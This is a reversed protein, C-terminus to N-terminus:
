EHLLALHSGKNPILCFVGIPHRMLLRGDKEFSILRLYELVELRLQDSLQETDCLLFFNLLLAGPTSQSRFCDTIDTVADLVEFTHELQEQVLIAELEEGNFVAAPTGSARQTFRSRVDQMGALMSNFILIVGGPRVMHLARRIAEKRDAIFYLCHTFHVLDFKRNQELPFQEFPRNEIELEINKFGGSQFAANFQELMAANPDLATYRLKAARLQFIPFTELDFNGHGSGVSLIFLCDSEPVLTAIQTRLWNLMLDRQTTRERFASFAQAYEKESLTTAFEHSTM